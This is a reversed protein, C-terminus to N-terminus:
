EEYAIISRVAAMNEFHGAAILAFLAAGFAAEETHAPVKLKGGFRREAIRALAPNKRIGNGSGVIGTCPTQMDAYMGYLEAMMGELVGYTLDEPTFNETSIGTISGRLTEDARTGEFRTDVTLSTSNVKELMADMIGYVAGGNVDSVYSLLKAYFDKLVAFAKGGCLAAGVILYKNEFYPRTELGVGTRVTDSIVSVQSGTGVNILVDDTTSLCSFVSAQNDGIAVSVPIGKYTGAIRYDAAVDMDVDYSTTNTALDYLGFSAADSVHIVAKKLGCLRMVLYDHITCYGVATPPVLGNQRNYFDTVHGYGTHSGLHAAYTTDGFPLNGRGDQWTYLPSVAIGNQDTYVIGHMQGTVGICAIDDTLFGDLIDTALNLIVDPSQIREWPATDPIFANSNETRSRLVKGTDTDIVVGCISTTGLDIGIAKM